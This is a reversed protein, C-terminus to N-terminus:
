GLYKTLLGSLLAVTKRTRAKDEVVKSTLRYHKADEYLKSQHANALYETNFM